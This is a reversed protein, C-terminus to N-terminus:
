NRKTHYLEQKTIELFKLASEQNPFKYEMMIGTSNVVYQEIVGLEIAKNKLHEFIQEAYVDNKSWEQLTTEEDEGIFVDNERITVYHGEYNNWYWGNMFEGWWEFEENFKNTEDSSEVGFMLRKTETPKKVDEFKIWNM